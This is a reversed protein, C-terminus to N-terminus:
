EDHYPGARSISHSEGILFILNSFRKIIRLRFNNKCAILTIQYSNRLRGVCSLNCASAPLTCSCKVCNSIVSHDKFHGDLSKVCFKILQFLSRSVNIQLCFCRTLHQIRGLFLKSHSFHVCNCMFLVFRRRSNM